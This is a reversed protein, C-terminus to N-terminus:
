LAVLYHIHFEYSHRGRSQSVTQFTTRPQYLRHKFDSESAAHNSGFTCSAPRNEHLNPRKQLSPQMLRESAAPSSSTSSSQMYVGDDRDAFLDDEDAFPSGPRCKADVEVAEAAESITTVVGNKKGKSKHQQIKRETPSTLRPKKLKFKAKQLDVIVDDSSTNPSALDLDLGNQQSKSKKLKRFLQIIEEM